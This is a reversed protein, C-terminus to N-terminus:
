TLARLRDLVAEDKSMKKFLWAWTAIKIAAYTSTTKQKALFDKTPKYSTKLQLNVKDVVGECFADLTERVYDYTGPGEGMALYDKPTLHPRDKKFTRWACDSVLEYLLDGDRDQAESM